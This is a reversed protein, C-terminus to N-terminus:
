PVQPFGENKEIGDDNIYPWKGLNKYLITIVDGQLGNSRPSSNELMGYQTVDIHIDYKECFGHTPVHWIIELPAQQANDADTGALELLLILIPLINLVSM